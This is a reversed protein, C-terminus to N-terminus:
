SFRNWFTGYKNFPPAVPLKSRQSRSFYTLFNVCVIHPTTKICTGVMNKEFKESWYYALFRMNESKVSPGRTALRHIVFPWFETESYPDGLPVNRGLKLDRALATVFHAMSTSHRRWWCTKVETVKFLLDFWFGPPYTIDGQYFYRGYKKWIKRVLILPSIVNKRNQGKAGQHGFRSDCFVSIQDILQQWGPTCTYWTQPWYSWHNCFTGSYNLPRVVSSPRM